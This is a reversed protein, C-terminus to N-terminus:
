HYCYNSSELGISSKQHLMAHLAKHKWIVILAIISPVAIIMTVQATNLPYVVSLDAVQSGIVTQKYMSSWIESSNTWTTGNWQFETWLLLDNPSCDATVNNQFYLRIDHLYLYQGFRVAGQMDVPSVM